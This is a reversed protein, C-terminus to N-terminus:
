ESEATPETAAADATAETAEADESEASEGLDEVGRPTFVQAIMIEEDAKIAEVGDPLVLDNLMLRDDIEMNSIDHKIETPINITPALVAINFEYQGLRGGSKVGEPVGELHLPVVAEIKKDKDVKIFDVHILLPKIPHAQVERPLSLVKEGEIDLEIPTNKGKPGALIKSLELAPVHIHIQEIGEGYVIAPVRGDARLRGAVASGHESKKKAEIKEIVIAM